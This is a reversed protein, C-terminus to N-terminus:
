NYVINSCKSYFSNKLYSQKELQSPDLQLKSEGLDSNNLSKQTSITSIKMQQTNKKDENIVDGLMM